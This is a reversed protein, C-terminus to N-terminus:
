PMVWWTMDNRNGCDGAADYSQLRVVVAGDIRRAKTLADVCTGHDLGHLTVAVISSAPMTAISVERKAFDRRMAALVRPSPEPVLQNRMEGAAAELQHRIADGPPELWLCLQYGMPLAAGICLLMSITWLSRRQWTLSRAIGITAQDHRVTTAM